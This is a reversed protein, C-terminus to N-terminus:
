IWGVILLHLQKSRLFSSCNPRLPCQGTIGLDGSSADLANQRPM